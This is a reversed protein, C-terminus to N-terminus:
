INSQQLKTNQRCIVFKAGERWSCSQFMNALLLADYLLKLPLLGPRADKPKSGVLVVALWRLVDYPPSFNSVTRTIPGMVVLKGAKGSHQTQWCFFFSIAVLKKSLQTHGQKSDLNTIIWIIKKYTKNVWQHLLWFCAAAYLQIMFSSICIFKIQYYM